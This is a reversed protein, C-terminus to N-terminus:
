NGEKEIEFELFLVSSLNQVRIIESQGVEYVTKEIIPFERKLYTIEFVDTIQNLSNLFM